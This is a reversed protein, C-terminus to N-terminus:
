FLTYWFNNEGFDPWCLFHYQYITREQSNNLLGSDDDDLCQITFERLTFEVSARENLLRVKIKGYQKEKEEETPWYQLCKSKGREVLKTTMVIVRSNEQWVMWWFDNVTSSLPGQTAIYEKNNSNECISRQDNLTRESKDPDYDARIFNANIYDSSTGDAAKYNILKVRTYDFPLINKYRNKSKNEQRQGEKRTYYHKLEQQQLYEFEEWFGSKGGNSSNENSLVKVRSDITSATIRTANFPTKLHVVTGLTEVMPNRKYFEILHSLSEFRDGGGVDYKGDPQYRIKVHTVKDETRACIVYDGPDSQSERVLFAGNKANKM